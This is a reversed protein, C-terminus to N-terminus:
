DFSALGTKELLDAHLVKLEADFAERSLDLGECGQLKFGCHHMNGLNSIASMQEQSVSQAGNVLRLIEKPRGINNKVYRMQADRHAGRSPKPGSYNLLAFRTMKIAFHLPTLGDFHFIRARSCWTHTLRGGEEAPLPMHIGMRLPAGVRVISKGEAHGTLGQRLFKAFRGYIEEGREEHQDDLSRFEGEFLHDGSSNPGYVREVNPIRLYLWSKKGGVLEAMLADADEVFEDGDCHLLWECKTKSLANEANHKQRGTHRERRKGSNTERWYAADCLTVFCGELQDLDAQAVPNPRDLYIHVEQAGIALHHRAYARVLTSPEDVTAVV